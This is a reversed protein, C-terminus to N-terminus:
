QQDLIAPEVQQAHSVILYGLLIINKVNLSAWISVILQREMTVTWIGKCGERYLVIEESVDCEGVRYAAYQM